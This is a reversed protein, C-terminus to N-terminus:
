DEMDTCAVGQNPSAKTGVEIGWLNRVLEEVNLELRLVQTNEM